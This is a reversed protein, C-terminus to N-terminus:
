TRVSSPGSLGTLDLALARLYDEAPPNDGKSEYRLPVLIHPTVTLALRQKVSRRPGIAGPEPPEERESVSSVIARLDIDGDM